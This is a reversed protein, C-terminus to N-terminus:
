SEMGLISRCYCVSFSEIPLHTVHRACPSQHLTTRVPRIARIGCVLSAWPQVSGTSICVMVPGDVRDTRPTSYRM